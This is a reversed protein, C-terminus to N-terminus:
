NPGAHPVHPDGVAELGAARSQEPEGLLLDLRELAEVGLEALAVAFNMGGGVFDDLSTPDRFRVRL